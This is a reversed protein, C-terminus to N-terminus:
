AVERIGLRAIRDGIAQVSKAAEIFERELRAREDGPEIPTPDAYGSERMLFNAAAHCGIRRGERLLWLVQDPNFREARDPNLCDAVHRGAADASKEPWMAAGVKKFGGLAQVVERLADTVSEHFLAPANM